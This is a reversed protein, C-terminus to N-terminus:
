KEKEESIKKMWWQWFDIEKWKIVTNFGLLDSAEEVEGKEILRKVISNVTGAPNAHDEIGRGLKSLEGRIADKAIGVIGYSRIIKRIDETLSQETNYRTWSETLQKTVASNTNDTERLLETLSSITRRRRLIEEETRKQSAELQTLENLAKVLAARYDNRTM